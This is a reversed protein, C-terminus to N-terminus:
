DRRRYVRVGAIEGEPRYHAALYRAFAPYAAIPFKGYSKIGAAATDLVLAPRRQDLDRLALDWAWAVAHAGPDFADDYESPTGPSLGTLYNCFSFRVGPNRGSAFYLQPVNGWVWITDSPGTRAAIARGIGDTDPDRANFIPRSVDPLAALALFVLAPAFLAAAAVRPRAAFLRAAPGAALLALPLEPQLFYHGFFRLGLFVSAISLLAWVALFAHASIVGTSAGLGAGALGEQVGAGARRRLLRSLGALGGAYLLAGPVIVGAFALGFRGLAWLPPPGEAVYSRNFGIGWAVAEGLAGRAHFYAAVAGLPFLAGLATWAARVPLTRLLRPSDDSRRRELWLAPLAFLVVAAQYKFLAAVTGLAGACADLACARARRPGAQTAAIACLACLACPLNMLLEGNVALGDAPQKCASVVAYLLPPVTWLPERLTRRAIGYLALCTGVAAFLGLLHVLAMALPEDRGAVRHLLAYTYALGPPKHDVADRYMVGGEALTGAMADYIAEDDSIVGYEFAPLRLAACLLCAAVLRTRASSLRM